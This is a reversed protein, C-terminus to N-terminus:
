NGNCSVKYAITYIKKKSRFDQRSGYKKWKNKIGINKGNCSVIIFKPNIKKHLRIRQFINSNSPCTTTWPVKIVGAGSDDTFYKEGKYVITQEKLFIKHNKEICYLNLKLSTNRIMLEFEDLEGRTAITPIKLGEKEDEDLPTQGEIYDYTLGM